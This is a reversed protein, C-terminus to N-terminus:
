NRILHTLQPANKLRKEVLKRKPEDIGAAAMMSDVLSVLQDRKPIFGRRIQSIAADDVSKGQATLDNLLALMTECQKEDGLWVTSSVMLEEIRDKLEKEGWDETGVRSYINGVAWGLKAQFSENLQIHKAALCTEYHEATRISISLRTVACCDHALIQDRYLYFYGPENNNLLRILFDQLRRRAKQDGVPIGSNSVAVLKRLARDIITGIPRVPCIAIYEAKATPRRVLDCTQTLVM